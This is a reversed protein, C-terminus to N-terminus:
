ILSYPIFKDQWSDFDVWEDNVLMMNHEALVISIHLPSENNFNDDNSPM